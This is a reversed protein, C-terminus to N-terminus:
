KIPGFTRESFDWWVKWVSLIEGAAFFLVFGGVLKQLSGRSSASCTEKEAKVSMEEVMDFGQRSIGIFAQLVDASAIWSTNGRAGMLQQKSRNPAEPCTRGRCAVAISWSLRCFDVIESLKRWQIQHIKELPKEEQKEM